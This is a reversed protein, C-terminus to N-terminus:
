GVSWLPELNQQIEKSIHKYEDKQWNIGKVRDKLKNIYIHDGLPDLFTFFDAFPFPEPVSGALFYRKEVGKSRRCIVGRLTDKIFLYMRPTKNEGQASPQTPPAQGGYRFEFDFPIGSLLRMVIELEGGSM